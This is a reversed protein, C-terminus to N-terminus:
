AQLGLAGSLEKALRELRDRSSGAAAGPREVWRIRPGVALPRPGLVAIPTQSALGHIRQALRQWGMGRHGELPDRVDAGMVLAPSEGRLLCQKFRGLASGADQFIHVRAGTAGLAGKIAELLGLDTDVCIVPNPPIEARAPAPEAASRVGPADSRTSKPSAAAPSPPPSAAEDALRAGELALFEPALPDGLAIGQPAGGHACPDAGSHFVFEGQDWELAELLAQVAADRLTQPARPSGPELGLTALVKDPSLRDGDLAVQVIGGRRLGIWVESGPGRIELVGTKRSLAVVQLLEPVSLDSLSGALSM